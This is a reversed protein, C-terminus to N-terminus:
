LTQGSTFLYMMKGCIISAAHLAVKYEEEQLQKMTQQVLNKAKASANINGYNKKSLCELVTPALCIIPHQSIATQVDCTTGERKKGGPTTSSIEKIVSNISCFRETKQNPRFALPM